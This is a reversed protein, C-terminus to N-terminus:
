SCHLWSQLLNLACNAAKNGRNMCTYCSAKHQRSVSLCNNFVLLCPLCDDLLPHTHDWMIVLPLVTGSCQVSSECQLCYHLIIMCHCTVADFVQEVCVGVSCALTFSFTLNKVSAFGPINFQFEIAKLKIALMPQHYEVGLICVLHWGMDPLQM